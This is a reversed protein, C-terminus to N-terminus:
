AASRERCRKRRWGLELAADLRGAVFGFLTLLTQRAGAGHQIPAQQLCPLIEGGGFGPGCLALPVPLPGGFVRPRAHGCQLLFQGPNALLVGAALLLQQAGGGGSVM